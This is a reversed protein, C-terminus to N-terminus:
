NSHDRLLINGAVSFYAIDIVTGKQIPSGNDMRVKVKGQCLQGPSYNKKDFDVTVFINGVVYKRIRFKRYSQPFRRVNSRVQM